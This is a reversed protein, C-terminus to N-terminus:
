RRHNKKSISQNKLGAFPSEKGLHYPEPRVEDLNDKNLETWDKQEFPVNPHLMFKIVSHGFFEKSTPGIRRLEFQMPVQGGLHENLLALEMELEAPKEIGHLVVYAFMSSKHYYKKLHM